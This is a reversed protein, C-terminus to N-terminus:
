CARAGIDLGLRVVVVLEATEDVDVDGAGEEDGLSDTLLHDLRLSAARDDIDGRHGSGDDVVWLLLRTVVRGLSTDDLEGLGEGGLPGTVLDAHVGDARAVHVGGQVANGGEVGLLADPDVLSRLLTETGDIVQVVQSNVEGGVARTEHGAVVAEDVATVGDPLREM